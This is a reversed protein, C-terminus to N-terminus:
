ESVLNILHMSLPLFDWQAADYQTIDGWLADPNSGTRVAVEALPIMLERGRREGENGLLGQDCRVRRRQNSELNVVTM